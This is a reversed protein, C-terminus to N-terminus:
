REATFRSTPRPILTQLVLYSAAANLFRHM